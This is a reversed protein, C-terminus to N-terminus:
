IDIWPPYINHLVQNIDLCMNKSRTIIGGLSAKSKFRIGYKASKSPSFAFNINAGPTM